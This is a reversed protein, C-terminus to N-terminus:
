PTIPEQITGHYYLPFISQRVEFDIAKIIALDITAKHKLAVSKYLQILFSQAPSLNWETIEYAFSPNNTGGFRYIVLKVDLLICEGFLEVIFDKKEYISTKPTKLPPM